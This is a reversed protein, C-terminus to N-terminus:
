RKVQRKEYLKMITEGLKDDAVFGVVDHKEQDYLFSTSGFFNTRVVFVNPLGRVSKIGNKHTDILSLLKEDVISGSEAPTVVDSFPKEQGCEGCSLLGILGERENCSPVGVFYPNGEFSINAIELKTELPKSHSCMNFHPFRVLLDQYEGIQKDRFYRLSRNEKHIEHNTM